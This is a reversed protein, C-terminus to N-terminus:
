RPREKQGTRLLEVVEKIRQVRLEPSRKTADIYRLYAKRYFQALTDFFEGAAPEAELAAAIDPALDDRQPGEPALVVKLKTAPEVGCDRWWAPGPAIAWGGAYRLISGRWRSEGIFGSVRHEQKAGWADDPDFPVPIRNGAATISAVFSKSKPAPV